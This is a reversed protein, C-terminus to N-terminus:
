GKKPVYEGGVTHLRLEAAMDEELYLRGEVGKTANSVDTNGTEVLLTELKQYADNNIGYEDDLLDIAFDRISQRTM